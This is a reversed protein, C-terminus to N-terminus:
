LRMRDLSQLVLNPQHYAVLQVKWQYRLPLLYTTFSDKAYKINPYILTMLKIAKIIIPISLYLALALCHLIGSFVSKNTANRPPPMPVAIPILDKLCLVLCGLNVISTGSDAMRYRTTTPYKNFIIFYIIFDWTLIIM